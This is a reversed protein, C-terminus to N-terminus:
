TLTSAGVGLLRAQCGLTIREDVQAVVARDGQTMFRTM